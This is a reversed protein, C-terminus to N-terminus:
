VGTNTNVRCARAGQSRFAPRREVEDVVSDLARKALGASGRSVLVNSDSAARVDDQLVEVGAQDIVKGEGEGGDEEAFSQAQEVADVVAFERHLDHLRNMRRDDCM